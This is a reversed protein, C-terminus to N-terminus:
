QEGRAGATTSEGVASQEEFCSRWQSCEDSFKTQRAPRKGMSAYAGPEIGRAGPGNGLREPNLSEARDSAQLSPM